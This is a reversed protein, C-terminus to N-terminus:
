AAVAARAAAWEKRAKEKSAARLILMAYAEGGLAHARWQAGPRHDPGRRRAAKMARIESELRALEARWASRWALYGERGPTWALAAAITPSDPQLARGARRIPTFDFTNEPM